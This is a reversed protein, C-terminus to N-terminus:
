RIERYIPFAQKFLWMTEVILGFVVALLGVFLGAWAGQSLGVGLVASCGVAYFFVAQTVYKTLGRQVLLGNFFSQWPSFLPLWLAIWLGSVAMQSLHPELGAVVDFWFSALPTVAMCLLLGTTCCALGGAFSQLPLVMERRPSLAIVVEQFAFGVSRFVFTLGGLVPWVALSELALPMRSLAASILPLTALTMLPTAALPVYFSVLEGFSLGSVTPQSRVARIAPRAFCYMLGAEVMVGTAMATAAVVIGPGSFSWLGCGLISLSLCIRVLTGLGILRTQGTRIVVGQLFRRLGISLTWPTMIQLGFRAPEIIPSPVGLLDVVILDYLPSFAVGMHLCTLLGGLGWIFNRLLVYAPGDKCLATSASLIMIIPAEIILSLPFVVGGFAALHIEPHPFRSLVIAVLPLELGM